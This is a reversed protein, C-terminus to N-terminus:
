PVVMEGAEEGNVWISYSGPPLSGLPIDSSFDQIMEICILGVPVLSYADVRIVDQDDPASVDAKFVHCPTPLYGKVILKPQATDAEPPILSIIELYAVSRTMNVELSFNAADFDGVYQGNLQVVYIGETYIGLPIDQEIPVTPGKCVRGTEILAYVNVQILNPANAACSPCVASGFQHCATPLQGQVHLLVLDPQDALSRLEAEELFFADRVFPEATPSPLLTPPPTTTVHPALTGIPTPANPPNAQGSPSACAPLFLVLLALLWIHKM